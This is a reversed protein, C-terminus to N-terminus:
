IGAAAHSSRMANTVQPRRVLKKSLYRIGPREVWVYVAVAVVTSAAVSLIMGPASRSTLWPARVALVRNCAEEVYPHTLYLVYSADGILILFRSKCDLGARSLLVLGLLLACSCVSLLGDTRRTGYIGEIFVLASFAIVAIILAMYRLAYCMPTTAKRYILYIGIGLIFNLIIPDSYFSAIDSFTRFWRCTVVIVILLVSALAPARRRSIFLSVAVVAYFFMEYNLTWGLFLLPQMLGPSKMYPIFLLSKILPKASATTTIMLRPFFTAILFLLLTLSWYPPVIRVLRRRFFKTADVMCIHAMIFGSIVFFVHVGFRGFPKFKWASFQTHFYVVSLAAVGRLIQINNIKEAM